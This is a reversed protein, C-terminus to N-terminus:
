ESVPKEEAVQLEPVAVDGARNDRRGGATPRTEDVSVAGVPASMLKLDLVLFLALRLFGAAWLSESEPASGFSCLPPTSILSSSSPLGLVENELVLREACVHVGEFVVVVGFDLLLVGLVVVFDFLLVGFAVDFVVDLVVTVVFSLDSSEPSM